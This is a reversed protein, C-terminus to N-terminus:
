ITRLSACGTSRDPSIVQLRIPGVASPKLCRSSITSIVLNSFSSPTLTFTHAGICAVGSSIVFRPRACKLTRIYGSVPSVAHRWMSRVSPNGKVFVTGIPTDAVLSKTSSTRPIIPRVRPSRGNSERNGQYEAETSLVYKVPFRTKMKPSPEWTIVAARM